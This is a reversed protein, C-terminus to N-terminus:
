SKQDWFCKLKLLCDQLHSLISMVQGEVVVLVDQFSVYQEQGPDGMYSSLFMWTAFKRTVVDTIRVGQFSVTGFIYNFRPFDAGVHTM